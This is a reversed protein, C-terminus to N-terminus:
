ISDIVERAKACDYVRGSTRGSKTEFMIDCKAFFRGYFGTEYLHPIDIVMYQGDFEAFKKRYGEESEPIAYIRGAYKGMLSLPGAGTDNYTLIQKIDDDKRIYAITEALAEPADGNLKGLMFEEAFVGNYAIGIMILIVAISARWEKKIFGALGLLVSVVYSVAIFLFSVYFGMPGNGGIFPNLINWEGHLVKSFWETKPYLAVVSHPLFNLAVLILSVVIGILAPIRYKKGNMGDFCDALIIGVIAVLPVILFLLYKDLAARSFDFAVFYFFFGVVLYIFFPRSKRLTERSVFMIPVVMLPSLFFLAKAGQVIIQIWNRGLGGSSQNAHVLMGSVSFEPFAAQILYLSVVYIGGFIAIAGAGIALRKAFLDRRWSLLHEIVIVGIVLIFSLKVLFGALLAIVMLILWRGRHLYVSNQYQDNAYVALLFLFPLIAGDVDPSLSGQINYACIAFLWVSWLGAAKGARDKIVLYLLWAAAVSFILPLWRMGDIGFANYAAAFTMAMLPPHTFFGFASALTVSSSVNKWEDQHYPLDLGPLRLAFFVIVLAVVVLATRSRASM